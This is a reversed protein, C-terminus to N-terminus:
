HIAQSGPLNYKKWMYNRYEVKYIVKFINNFYAILLRCFRITSIYLNSLRPFCLSLDCLFCHVRSNLNIIKGFEGNINLVKETYLFYGKLKNKKEVINIISKTDLRQSLLYLDYMDRLSNKKFLYGDHSLQSHIFNQILKHVDSQVFCNEKDSIMKIQDFVRDSSFQEADKTLVPIRHIEVAAPYDDKFMRPLHHYDTWNEVIKSKLKYGLEKLLKCAEICNKEKVLIDIDGIMREGIDSYLDDLIHACGKLYVPVINKQKLNKNIEHIQELILSNRNKNLKYIKTLLQSVENPLYKLLDLKKFRLYISPLILNKDCVQIFDNLTIDCSTLIRVVEKRFEPSDNQTLCQGAFYFLQKSNM